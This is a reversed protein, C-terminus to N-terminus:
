QRTSLIALTLGFLGTGVVTETSAGAVAMITSAASLATAAVATWVISRWNFM